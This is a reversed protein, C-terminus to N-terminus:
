DSTIEFVAIDLNKLPSTRSAWISDATTSAETKAGSSDYAQISYGKDGPKLWMGIDFTFPYPADGGKNLMLVLIRDPLVWATAHIAPSM